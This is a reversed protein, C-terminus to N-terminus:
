KPGQSVVVLLRCISASLTLLVMKDTVNWAVHCERLGTIGHMHGVGVTVAWIHILYLIHQLCSTVLEEGTLGKQNYLIALNSCSEAVDPHDGGLRREREKLEEEFPRPDDSSLATRLWLAL